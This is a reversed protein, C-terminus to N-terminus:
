EDEREGVRRRAEAQAPVDPMDHHADGSRGLLHCALCVRRGDHYRHPLDPDAVFVHPGPRETM